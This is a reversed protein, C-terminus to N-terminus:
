VVSKRDTQQVHDATRHSVMARQQEIWGRLIVAAAVGAAPLAVAVWGAGRFVQSLLVGLLAFRAIGIVSAVLGMLIAAAIWGRLGRTFAWLRRDFHM